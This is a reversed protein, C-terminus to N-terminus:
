PSIPQNRSLDTPIPIPTDPAWFSIEIPQIKNLFTLEARLHLFITHSSVLRLSGSVGYELGLSSLEPGQQERRFDQLSGKCQIQWLSGGDEVSAAGRPEQSIYVRHVKPNVIYFLFNPTGIM